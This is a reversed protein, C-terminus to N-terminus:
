GGPGGRRTEDDEIWLRHVRAAPDAHDPSRLGRVNRHAVSAANLPVLVTVPLRARFLALAREMLRTREAPDWEVEAAQILGRLEADDYGIYSDEGVVDVLNGFHFRHVAADAEGSEIATRVMAFGNVADIDVQVGVEALRAQVYVAPDMTNWDGRAGSAVITFRFPQGDRERVGDGDGDRWGAEELLAGAADPDFPAAEGPDLGRMDFPLVGDVLRTEGPLSLVGALEKRDIALTLARRVSADRFLPSRHNWYISISSSLNESHYIRFRPDRSLVQADGFDVPMAAAQINGAKLEVLANGGFRFIVTEIAPPGLYYDPNAEVEIMGDDVHRVYRYPGSGVPESWFPWAWYEAPDLDELLHRPYIVIGQTGPIRETFTVQFTTDNLARVIRAGPTTRDLVEPHGMLDLTFKVDHATLPVGDHWRVGSRLHYTWTRFDESHEWRQVLAGTPEGAEDRRFLPEFVLHGPGGWYPGFLAEDAWHGIVLTDHASDSDAGAGGDGEVRLDIVNSSIWVRTGNKLGQVREHAAALWLGPLLFLFPQDEQFIPWTRRCLDDMEDPLVATDMDDALELLAENRYGFAAKRDPPLGLLRPFHNPCRGWESFVAQVDGVDDALGRRIATLLDGVAANPVIELEVGVKALQAQLVVLMDMGSRATQVEISLARGERDRVGDGDTDRWGAVDLLRRAREPDFALPPPGEGRLRQGWTLPVDRFRIERPYDLVAAMEQRDVALALAQRVRRDALVPDRLNWSVGSVGNASRWYSRLEPDAALV